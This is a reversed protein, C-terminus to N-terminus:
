LSIKLGVIWTRPQPIKDAPNGGNYDDGSFTVDPDGGKWKTFTYLNQVSCYVTLDKLLIKKCINEPLNYSLNINSIKFYSASSLWIDSFKQNGNPDDFTLRPLNGGPNETTQYRQLLVDSANEPTGGFYSLTIGRFPLDMGKLGQTQIQLSLRKYSVNAVFGYTLDTYKKGIFTRDNDDIVGDPKGTLKGNADVGNNDKFIVDGLEADPSLVKYATLEAQTKVIGNTEYGYYSKFPQGVVIGATRSDQGDLDLVKNRMATFNANIDYSFDGRKERFGLEFEWGKNQFKGGNIYAASSKGVSLPLPKQYLLNSTKSIFYDATVYFKSKFLSLDIGFNNKRTTEWKVDPNIANELTFGGSLRGNLVATEQTLALATPYDGSIGANGLTGSSARIKLDNVVNLLPEFFKEKSIRWGISYSPFVGWRNESSFRSVGDRRVTAQLLYKGDYDYNIRGIYSAISWATYTNDNKETFPEGAALYYISNLAIGSRYGDLEENASTEQTYAAVISLNHKKFTRDYNL